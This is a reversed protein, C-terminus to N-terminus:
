ITSDDRPESDGAEGADTRNGGDRVRAWLARARREWDDVLDGRGPDARRLAELGEELATEVSGPSAGVRLAGRLHSHLQRPWRAGTLLAVICLERVALDLGARALVKGYGDRVMWRDLDPHLGAVNSRLRPYARGYVRRCTARGDERVRDPDRRDVRADDPGAGPRGSARRWAAFAELVPPFGVFLHAQLLAEELVRAPAEGSARELVRRVEEGDGAGLAASIRIPVRTDTRM